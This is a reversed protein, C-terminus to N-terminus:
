VHARGIEPVFAASDAGDYWSELEVLTAAPLAEEITDPAAISAVGLWPRGLLLGGLNPTEDVNTTNTGTDYLNPMSTVDYINGGRYTPKTFDIDGSITGDKAVVRGQRKAQAIDLKDIQRDYKFQRTSIGNAAM